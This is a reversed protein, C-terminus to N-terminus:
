VNLVKREKWLKAGEKIGYKKVFGKYSEPETEKTVEVHVSIPEQPTEPIVKYGMRELLSVSYPHNCIAIGDIVHVSEYYTAEIYRKPFDRLHRSKYNPAQLRVSM